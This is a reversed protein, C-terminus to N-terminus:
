SWQIRTAARPDAFLSWRGHKTPNFERATRQLQSVPVAMAIAKAHSRHGHRILIRINQCTAILWDQISQQQLGRWRARKFGHNTAADAFSGEMLHM